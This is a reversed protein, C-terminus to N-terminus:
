RPPKAEGPVAEDDVPLASSLGLSHQLAHEALILRPNKGIWKAAASLLLLSARCDFVRLLPHFCFVRRIPVAQFGLKVKFRHLGPTNAAPDVSSTGASVIRFEREALYHSLIHFLLADNPRLGLSADTSFRVRVEVWDDVEILGAFAALENERWAGFFRNGCLTAPSGLYSRFHAGTVNTWGHRRGTDIFAREGFRMVEELKVPRIQFERLGRKVNGQVRHELAKLNYHSDSCVYVLADAPRAPTPELLYTLLPARRKWFLDTLEKPGPPHVAFIPFRMLAGVEYQLWWTSASGPYIRLGSGAHGRAYDALSPSRSAFADASLRSANLTNVFEGLNNM